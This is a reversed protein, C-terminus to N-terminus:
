KMRERIKELEQEADRVLVALAERVPLIRDVLGVSQGAM